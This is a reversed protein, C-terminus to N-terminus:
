ILGNVSLSHIMNVQFLLRTVETKGWRQHHLPTDLTYNDIGPALEPAKLSFIM